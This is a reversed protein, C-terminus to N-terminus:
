GNWSISTTSLANLINNLVIFEFMVSSFLVWNPIGRGLLLPDIYQLQLLTGYGPIVYLSDNSDGQRFIHGNGGGFTHKLCFRKSTKHSACNWKRVEEALAILLTLNM